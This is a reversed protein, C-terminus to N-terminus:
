VGWTRLRESLWEVSRRIASRYGEAEIAPGLVEIDFYGKYDADLLLGLMWELPMSGDGLVRRNLRLEEGVMFDSVQVIAFRNVNERFLRGLKREYWCNQLELCIGIDADWSLDVADALSHIFGHHRTATSTHEIALRVGKSRGYETAPRLCEVLRTYAEDTPMRPPAPGTVTYINPCDLASAVDIAPKLAELTLADSEILCGGGTSLTTCRFGAKRIAEIGEAPRQHFKFYPAGINTIDMSMYFEIDQELSWNYSSIPNVSIRPHINLPQM